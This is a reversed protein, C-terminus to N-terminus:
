EAYYPNTFLKPRDGYWVEFRVFRGEFRRELVLNATAAPETAVVGNETVTRIEDGAVLGSFLVGIREGAAV